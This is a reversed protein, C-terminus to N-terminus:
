FGIGGDDRGRQRQAPGRKRAERATRREEVKKEDREMNVDFEKMVKRRIGERGATGESSRMKVLAHDPNNRLGADEVSVARNGGEDLIRRLDGVKAGGQGHAGAVTGTSREGEAERQVSLGRDPDKLDRMPFAQRTLRRQGNVEEAQRAERWVTEEDRVVGRSHESQQKSEEPFLEGLKRRIADLIRAM